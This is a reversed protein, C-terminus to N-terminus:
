SNGKCEGRSENMDPQTELFAVQVGNNALCM